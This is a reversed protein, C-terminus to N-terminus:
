GRPDYIEGLAARETRFTNAPHDPDAFGFSIACLILRSEPLGFHTRIM